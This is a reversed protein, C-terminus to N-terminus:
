LEEERGAKELEEKKEQCDRCCIASPMVKLRGSSIQEGCEDCIGYTGDQIKRLAEDIKILNERHAGLRKLAIDQSLDIVSLDGDDLASEVIQRAEVKVNKKIENGAERILEERKAILQKKIFSEKDSPAKQIKKVVSITEDIKTVTHKTVKSPATKVTKTQTNGKTKIQKKEQNVTKKLVKNEKKDKGVPKGKQAPTHKGIKEIAKTAKKKPLSATKKTAM